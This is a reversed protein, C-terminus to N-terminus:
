PSAILGAVIIALHAGGHQSESARDWPSEGNLIKNEIVIADNELQNDRCSKETKECVM